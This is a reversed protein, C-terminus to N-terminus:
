AASALLEQSLVSEKTAIVKLCSDLIESDSYLSNLMREAITHDSASGTIIARNEELRERRDQLSREVIGLILRLRDKGADARGAITRTFTDVMKATSPQVEAATIRRLSAMTGDYDLSRKKKWFAWGSRMVLGVALSRRSSSFAAMVEDGPMGAVSIQIRAGDLVRNVAENARALAASLLDDLRQRSEAYTDQVEGEMAARLPLIDIDVVAEAETAGAPASGLLTRQAAVFRGIHHDLRQQLATWGDNMAADVESEAEAIITTLEGHVDELLRLEDETSRQFELLNGAGYSEIQDQLRALRRQTVTKLATVQARAAGVIEAVFSAGIGFDMAEGLSRRIDPLGSARLLRARPDRPVEGHHRELFAIMQPDEATRRLLDPDAEEDAALEAWWASGCLVTFEREPIAAFIRASVDAVVTDATRAFDDLEDIRNIFVIVDKSHQGALMRCLAIDVETLAQHASLMIVFIDSNGLAQCTFEDRVLFPDNVGPTDTIIAPVAFDPSQRFVNAVKTIAAYRGVSERELGEDAGPGACVYRELLDPSLIDYDHKSGLLASYFRGLRRQARTRMEETQKRLVEVDFGPLMQEALKRMEANGNIIRDWASEDFFEFSAGSKPDAPINLRINTVVSTWPNVDSPLFGAEGILASLISSKGAKVQGVAAIRAAWGDIRDLLDQFGTAFEPPSAKQLDRFVGRLKDLQARHHSGIQM